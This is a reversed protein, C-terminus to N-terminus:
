VGTGQFTRGTVVSEIRRLLEEAESRVEAEKENIPGWHTRANRLGVAAAEAAFAPREKAMKQFDAGPGSGVNNIQPDSPHVGERFVDLLGEAAPLNANNQFVTKILPVLGTIDWSMQFLGAEATDSATNNASQDRGEFYKGSSERMGLGIQLAFLVRLRDIASTGNLGYWALADHSGNGVPKAMEAAITDNALLKQVVRAYVLAMGKIYGIPAQGRGGKWNVSVLESRAALAVIAPQNTAPDTIRGTPPQTPTEATGGADCFEFHMPDTRHRYNGGWRAGQRKFADVVIKPMTGHGTNFGNERANIDIAAGFAHNSWKTTSGRILRHNYAGDYRSVGAADVKSQDKGYAEWIENLAAHFADAAKKHFKISEIPQGEFTMRFPPVVPVLQPECEGKGPDGYFGILAQQSDKPWRRTVPVGDPGIIPPTEDRPIHEEILKFAKTLAEGLAAQTAAVFEAISKPKDATGVFKARTKFLAAIADDSLISKLVDGIKKDKDQSGTADLIVVAAKPSKTLYAHFLDLNSPIFPGKSPASADTGAPTAPPSAAAPTKLDSIAKGDAHMTWAAGRIQKLYHDFGTPAFSATLDAPADGLFTQWETPSVLLPGVGDTGDKAAVNQLDTEILARAVLFDSSVLWPPIEAHDNFAREVLVCDEVYLGPDVKERDEAGEPEFNAKLGWAVTVGDELKFEINDGKVNGTPTVKDGIILTDIKKGGVQDFIETKKTAILNM